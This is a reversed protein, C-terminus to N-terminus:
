RNPNQKVQEKNLLGLQNKVQQQILLLHLKKLHNQHRLSAVLNLREKELLRNLEHKRKPHPRNKLPLLCLCRRELVM